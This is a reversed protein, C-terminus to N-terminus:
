TTRSQPPPAVSVANSAPPTVGKIVLWLMLAMEAFLAPQSYLFAKGQYQPALIGTFSIALYALGNLALWVGLFRPMFRSRYVLLALPLLWLGWLFEAATIQLNNLQILLMALADRQPKSFVSLYDPGKALLLVGLDAATNVFTLTAPMVGGFLVVQVALNRDVGQFLQFFALTLFVLAVSAALNAAISFRFLAEHALINATTASPNGSVFLKAPVYMLRFPGLLVIFLYWLGAIRGPNRFPSM